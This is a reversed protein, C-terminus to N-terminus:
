AIKKNQRNIENQQRAKNQEYHDFLTATLIFVMGTVSTAGLMNFIFRVSTIQSFGMGHSFKWVALAWTVLVIIQIIFAKNKM